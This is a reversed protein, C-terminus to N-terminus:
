KVSFARELENRNKDVFRKGFGPVQELDTVSKFGDHAERYKIIAEARKVGIGKVSKSLAKVDATNLNIPSSSSHESVTRTVAPNAAYLHTSLVFFSLLSIFMRKKM